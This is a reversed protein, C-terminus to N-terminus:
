EITIKRIKTEEKQENECRLLEDSLVNIIKDILRFTLEVEKSTFSDFILNGYTIIKKIIFAIQEKGQNTMMITVIRKDEKSRQRKVLERKEMRAVIGTATNLPVSIYQAIQSMNVEDKQYLLLLIFLENKSCNFIESSWLDATFLIKIKDIYGFLMTELNINDTNIM